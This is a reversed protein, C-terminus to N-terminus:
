RRRRGSAHRKEVERYERIAGRVEDLAETSSLRELASRIQEIELDLRQVEASGDIVIPMGWPTDVLLPAYRPHLRLSQIETELERAQQKLMATHARLKDESMRAADGARELWELELRLLGHLDRQSYAATVDQIIRNKREREAPNAGLDPHLEKVLRRYVAGLSDKRLQEQHHRHEEDRLQRKTQARAPKPGMGEARDLQEALRAAAAALDEETM